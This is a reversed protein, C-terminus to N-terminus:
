GPAPRCRWLVTAVAINGSLGPCAKDQRDPSSWNDEFAGGSAATLSLQVLAKSSGRPDRRSRPDSRSGSDHFNRPQHGGDPGDRDHVRGDHHLRRASSHLENGGFASGLASGPKWASLRRAAALRRSRISRTGRRTRRSPARWSRWRRGTRPEGPSMPLAGRGRLHLLPSREDITGSLRIPQGRRRGALDLGYRLVRGARRRDPGQVRKAPLRSHEPLADVLHHGPRHDPGLDPAAGVGRREDHLAPVAGAPLNAPHGRLGGRRCRRHAGLGRVAGAHRGSRRSARAIRGADRDGGGPDSPPEDDQLREAAHHDPRVLTSWSTAPSAFGSRRGDGPRRVGGPRHARQGSPNAFTLNQPHGVSWRSLASDDVTLSSDSPNYFFAQAAPISM